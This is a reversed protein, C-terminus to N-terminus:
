RSVRLKRGTVLRFALEITFAAGTMAVLIWIRDPSVLATQWLLTALAALCLVVGLLSIWRLGHMEGALRVGAGNVAAFVLLFGASGMTSLSHLDVLNAILLAVGSTILLGEVPRNWLKHELV